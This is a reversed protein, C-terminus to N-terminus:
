PQSKKDPLAFRGAASASRAAVAIMDGDTESADGLAARQAYTRLQTKAMFLAMEPKALIREVWQEIEADLGVNDVVRHVMGWAAATNADIDDCMLLVERARAAGIEHILRPVAAWSLPMGLDVEPVRLVADRTAIRFDCSLAFCTGGGIAHGHVRAITVADCAEIARCARRGLQGEWRIERDSRAPAPADSTAQPKRDAGSCFTPGRGGLVVVRTDFDTELALFFDGIERLMTSNVANRREPRNLWINTLAGVREVEFTEFVVVGGAAGM